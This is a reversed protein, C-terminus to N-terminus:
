HYINIIDQRYYKYDRGNSLAINNDNYFANYSGSYGWNMHLYTSPYAENYVVGYNSTYFSTKSQLVKLVIDYGSVTNKIGDCVWAHGIYNGDDLRSGRM